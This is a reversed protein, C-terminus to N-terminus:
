ELNELVVDPAECPALLKRGMGHEKVEHPLVLIDGASGVVAVLNIGKQADDLGAFGKRQKRLNSIEGLAKKEDVLKMTGTNVQNDLREIEQDVEAVNNFAVRSRAVKQEAIRSKM